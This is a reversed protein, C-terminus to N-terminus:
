QKLLDVFAQLSDARSKEQRYLAALDHSSRRDAEM